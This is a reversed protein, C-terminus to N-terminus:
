ISLIPALSSQQSSPKAIAPTLHNRMLPYLAYIYDTRKRTIASHSSEATSHFQIKNKTSYSRYFNSKIPRTHVFSRVTDRHLHITDRTFSQTSHGRSSIRIATPPLTPGSLKQSRQQRHSITVLCLWSSESQVVTLMMDLAARHFESQDKEVKGGLKDYLRDLSVVEEESIEGAKLEDEVALIENALQHLNQSIRKEDPPFDYQRARNFLHSFAFLVPPATNFGYPM